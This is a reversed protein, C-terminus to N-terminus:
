KDRDRKWGIEKEKEEDIRRRRYREGDRDRKKGRDIENDRVREM